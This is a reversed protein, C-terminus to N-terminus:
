NLRVVLLYENEFNSSIELLAFQIDNTNSKFSLNPFFPLTPIIKIFIIFFSALMSAKKIDQLTIPLVKSLEIKSHMILRNISLTKVTNCASYRGVTFFISTLSKYSFLPNEKISSFLLPLLFYLMSKIRPAMRIPEKFFRELWALHLKKSIRSPPKNVGAYWDFEAGVCSAIGFNLKDKNMYLWKEQKPATMGVSLVDSNFENIKQIILESDKNSLESKYPPSYTAVNINSFESLLNEQITQLVDDSSGMYFVSGAADNLINLLHCHLDAGSIKSLGEGKLIKSALLIGSGDPILIDSDQLAAKFEDDKRAVIYSHPNITNIIKKSSNVVINSLPKNFVRYGMLELSLNM